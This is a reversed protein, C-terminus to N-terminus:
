KRPTRVEHSKVDRGSWTNYTPKYVTIEKKGNDHTKTERYLDKGIKEKKHKMTKASVRLVVKM